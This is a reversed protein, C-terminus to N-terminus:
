VLNNKKLELNEGMIEAIISDKKIIEAKLREVEKLEARKKRNSKQNVFGELAGRFFIEQWKYFANASINYKECTATVTRNSMIHEKLIQYKKEPSLIKKKM